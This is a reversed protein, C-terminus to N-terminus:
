DGSIDSSDNEADSEIFPRTPKRIVNFLNQPKSGIKLEISKIHNEISKKHSNQNKMTKYM